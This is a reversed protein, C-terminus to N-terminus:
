EDVVDGDAVQDYSFPGQWAHQELRQELRWLLAATAVWVSLTRVRHRNQDAFLARRYFVGDHDALAFDVTGVPKEDSGGTPGAIGSIALAFDAGSRDRAGAAMQCVVQPSVAGYTKLMDDDVDVLRRKASNAYTLYGEEFYASSGSVETLKAAVMGATCSEAVSVTKGADTLRKALRDMPSQAGEAVLWRGLQQRIADEVQKAPSADGGIRVEIVPFHARFGVSVGRTRAQAAVDEIMSELDSEARGFFTFVQQYPLETSEDPVPVYQRVFWRFERPVGPFFLFQAKKQQLQFGDATGVESALVTAHEPFLCQRRNNASFTRGRRDFRRRLREVSDPDEVLQVGAFEAAARRTRDDATPGLGGSTIVIDNDSLESLAATIADIDDPVIRVETPKIGQESAFQIFFRANHDVVRGDLLEDGICLIAATKM